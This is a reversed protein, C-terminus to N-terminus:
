LIASYVSYSKRKFRRDLELVQNFFTAKNPGYLYSDIQPIMGFIRTSWQFFLKMYNEFPESPDGALTILQYTEFVCQAWLYFETFLVILWTLKSKTIGVKSSADDWTFINLRLRQGGKILLRLAKITSPTFM